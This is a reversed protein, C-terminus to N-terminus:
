QATRPPTKVTRSPAVNPNITPIRMDINLNPTRMISQARAAPVDFYAFPLAAVVLAM